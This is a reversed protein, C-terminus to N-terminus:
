EVIKFAVFAVVASWVIAIGVGLEVMRGGKTAGPVPMAAATM